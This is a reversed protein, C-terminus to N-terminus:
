ALDNPADYTISFHDARNKSVTLEVPEGTASFYLMETALVPGGTEYDLAAALAEDALEARVKIQARSLKIGLHRQVARFVVVDDFDARKLRAGILPPFYFATQTIPQDKVLLVARLCYCATDPKLSFTECALVSREKRYSKIVLRRDISSAAIAALSQFELPKSRNPPTAVIAPKATRKRILGAGELDRLAQRVTILSVGYQTALDAERPLPRGPRLRGDDIPWRLCTTLQRYLPGHDRTLLQPQLIALAAQQM